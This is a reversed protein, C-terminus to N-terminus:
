ETAQDIQKQLATLDGDVGGRRLIEEAVAQKIHLVPLAGAEGAGRPGAFPILRDDKAFDSPTVILLAIAGAEKAHRAKTAFTAADSWGQEAFRSKGKDDHPEYRLALVVRGKADVGAYDDYKHEASKTGYGAFVVPGAFTGAASMNIPVFDERPTFARDGVRLATQPGLETATTMEFPQFYDSRNPLTQLGITQFQRAIYDAARDLGATGPGRGELDDSALYALTKRTDIEVATRPAAAADTPSNCGPCAVCLSVFMTALAAFRSMPHSEIGVSAPSCVCALRLRRSRTPTSTPPVNVSRTANSAAAPVSRM